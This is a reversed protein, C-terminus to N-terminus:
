RVQKYLEKKNEIRLELEDAYDMVLELSDYRIAMDALAKASDLNDELEFYVAMNHYARAVLTSDEDAIVESWITYASDWNGRDTQSAAVRLSKERGRYIQRAAPVWAPVLYKGYNMGWTFFGDRLIEAVTYFEVVVGDLVETYFLTDIITYEDFPKPYGKLYVNWIVKSALEFYRTRVADSDQYQNEVKGLDLSYYELSVIADVGYENCLADVERRTLVLDHIGTTDFRRDTVWLPLNFKNVPSTQFVHLLGRLLNNIILTDAIVLGQRDLGRRDEEEFADFTFPARNIVLLQNVEEPLRVSAPELVEFDVVSLTPGCGHGALLALM